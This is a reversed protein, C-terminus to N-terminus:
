ASQREGSLSRCFSSELAANANTSREFQPTEPIALFSRTNVGHEDTEGVGRAPENAVRFAAPTVVQCCLASGHDSGVSCGCRPCRGTADTVGEAQFYLCEPCWLVRTLREFADGDPEWCGTRGRRKWILSPTFGNCEFIQKDKVRKSGPAFETIALDLNRDITKKGLDPKRPDEESLDLYLERVRTPMGLMPLIGADALCEGLPSHIQTTGSVASGIRSVLSEEVWSHVQSPSLRSRRTVVASVHGIDSEHKTLWGKFETQYHTRWWDVSCFEGHTDSKTAHWRVGNQLFFRRLIEKAAVRWAIEPRDMALFPVPPAEGVM